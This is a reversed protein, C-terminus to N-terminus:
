LLRFLFGKKGRKYRSYVACAPYLMALALFWVLYVTGLDFGFGRPRQESGGLGLWRYDQGAAMVWFLALLHILYLHLVYYFMPEKGFILLPHLLKKAAPFHKKGELSLALLVPGLTMLLFQLSPPYKETNLLSIATKEASDYLQFDGASRSTWLRPPNGYANTVRLLLFLFVAVAGLRFLLRRRRQPEWSYTTALAFGLLTVFFWPFVPFLVFWRVGFINIPGPSYLIGWVWGWQGFLAPKVADLLNHLAIGAVGISVLAGVPLRILGALLICSWGLSWIVGAFNYGPRFVWAFGVITLELAILWLGRVLLFRTVEQRDRSHLSLGAGTGMLLFFAPACFHTIWRTFFLALWTRDTLEPPFPVNSLFYRVHDLAMIALVAGRVVDITEVRPRTLPTATPVPAPAHNLVLSSM